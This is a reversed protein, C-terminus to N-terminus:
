SDAAAAEDTSEEGAEAEAEAEALDEATVGGPNRGDDAVSHDPNLRWNSPRVPEADPDFGATENVIIATVMGFMGTAREVHSLIHGDAGLSRVPGRPAEALASTVGAWATYAPVLQISFVANGTPAFDFTGM